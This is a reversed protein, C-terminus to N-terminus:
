RREIPRVSGFQQKAREIIAGHDNVHMVAHNPIQAYNFDADMEHLSVM